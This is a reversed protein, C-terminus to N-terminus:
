NAKKLVLAERFRQHESFDKVPHYLNSPILQEVRWEVQYLITSLEPPTAVELQHHLALTPFLAEDLFLTKNKVAYAKIAALLEVSVRTACIMSRAWPLGIRGKLKKWHWKPLPTDTGFIENKASLLDASQSAQQNDIDILAQPSPIFVDEEILWINRYGLDVLSFYFLAKDRSCARNKCWLVSNKFGAKEALKRDIKILPLVGDYGDIEYADDAICIFVDYQDRFTKAYRYFESSPRVTLFCLATKQRM